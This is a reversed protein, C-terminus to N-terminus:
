RIKAFLNGKYATRALEISQFKAKMKKRENPIGHHAYKENKRLSTQVPTIKTISHVTRNYKKTM